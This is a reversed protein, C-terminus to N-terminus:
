PRRVHQTARASLRVRASRLLSTLHSHRSRSSLTAAGSAAVMALMRPHVLNLMSRQTREALERLDPRQQLVDDRAFVLMNQAYWWQVASEEWIRSRVCDLVVYGRKEFRSAWYRPWQENVHHTGTQLPVAASFVVLPALSVLSDVLQQAHEEAVHEAVELCLCLDFGRELDIPRSLDVVRFAQEPIRLRSPSLWAGDLGVVDEVGERRFAVLWGGVGCGVDVVSQPDFMERLLPVVTQASALSGDRQAAYFADSYCSEPL